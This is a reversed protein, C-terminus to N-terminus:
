TFLVVVRAVTALIFKLVPLKCEAFVANKFLSITFVDVM